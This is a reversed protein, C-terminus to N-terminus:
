RVGFAERADFFAKITLVALITGIPFAMLIPINVLLGMYFGIRMRCLVAIPTGVLVTAFFAVLLWIRHDVSEESIISSIGGFVILLGVILNPWAMIKLWTFAPPMYRRRRVDKRRRRAQAPLVIPPNNSQFKPAVRTPAWKEQSPM